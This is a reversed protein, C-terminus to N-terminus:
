GYFRYDTGTYGVNIHTISADLTLITPNGVLDIKVAIDGTGPDLNVFTFHTTNTAGATLLILNINATPTIFLRDNSVGPTVTIDVGSTIDANVLSSGSSPLAADIAQLHSTVNDDDVPTYNVPATFSTYLGEANAIREDRFQLTETTSNTGDSIQVASVASAIANNGLAIASTDSSNAQRGLSLSANGSANAQAGLATANINSAGSSRGLAIANQGTCNANAGIGIGESMSATANFALAISRDGSADTASGFATASDGTSQALAGVSTSNPQNAVAGHGYASARTDSAIAVTGTATAEVASAEANEGVAIGNDATSEAGSGLAISKSATAQTNDGLAIADTGTSVPVAAVSNIDVYPESTITSSASIQLREDAGPNLVSVQINSGQAVKNFLTSPVTDAPTVAVNIDGEIDGENILKHVRNFEAEYTSSQLRDGFQVCYVRDNPTDRIVSVSTSPIAVGSYTLLTVSTKTFDTNSTVVGDFKVTFDKLTLDPDLNCATVDISWGTGTETSTVIQTSNDVAVM